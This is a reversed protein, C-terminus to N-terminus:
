KPSLKKKPVLFSYTKLRLFSGEASDFILSTETKQQFSRGCITMRVAWKIDFDPTSTGGAHHDCCTM